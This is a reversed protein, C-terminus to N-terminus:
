RGERRGEVGTGGDVKWLVFLFLRVPSPLAAESRGACNEGAPRKIASKKRVFCSIFLLFSMNKNEKWEEKERKTGPPPEDREWYERRWDVLIGMDDRSIYVKKEEKEGEKM